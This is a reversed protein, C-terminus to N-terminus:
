GMKGPSRYDGYRPLQEAANEEGFPMGEIHLQSLWSKILSGKVGVQFCQVSDLGAAHLISLLMALLQMPFNTMGWGERAVSTSLELGISPLRV